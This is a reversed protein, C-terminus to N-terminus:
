FTLWLDCFDCVGLPFTNKRSRWNRLLWPKKVLNGHTKKPPARAPPGIQTWNCVGFRWLCVKLKKKEKSSQCDYYFTFFQPGKKKKLFFNTKSYVKLDTNFIIDQRIEGEDDNETLNWSIECNEEEEEEEMENKQNERFSPPRFVSHSSFRSLSSSDNNASHLVSNSSTSSQPAPYM